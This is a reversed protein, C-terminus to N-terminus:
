GVIYCVSQVASVAKDMKVCGQLIRMVKMLRLVCSVLLWVFQCFPRVGWVWGVDFSALM